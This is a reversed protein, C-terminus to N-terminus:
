KMEPHQFRAGLNPFTYFVAGHWICLLLWVAPEPIYYVLFYCFFFLVFYPNAGKFDYCYSVINNNGKRYLIKVINQILRGAKWHILNILNLVSLKLFKM